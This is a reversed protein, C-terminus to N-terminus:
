LSFVACILCAARVRMWGHTLAQPASNLSRAVSGYSLTAEHESKGGNTQASRCLRATLQAAGCVSHRSAPKGSAFHFTAYPRPCDPRRKKPPKDKPSAFSLVEASPGLGTRQRLHFVFRKKITAAVKASLKPPQKTATTTMFNEASPIRGSASLSM